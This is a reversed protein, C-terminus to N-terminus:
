KESGARRQLDLVPFNLDIPKPATGLARDIIQRLVAASSMRERQGIKKLAIRQAKSLFINSRIMAEM